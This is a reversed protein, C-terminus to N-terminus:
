KKGPMSNMTRNAMKWRFEKEIETPDKGKQTWFRNAREEIPELEVEKFDLFCEDAKKLWEELTCRKGLVFLDYNTIMAYAELRSYYVKLEDDRFVAGIEEKNNTGVIEMVHFFVLRNLYRFIEYWTTKEASKKEEKERHRGFLIYDTTVEFFDALAVLNEIRPLDEGREYRSITQKNIYLAEELKEQTLGKEKRLSRIREGVAVMDINAM